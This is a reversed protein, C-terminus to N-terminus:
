VLTLGAQGAYNAPCWLAWFPYATPHVMGNPLEKCFLIFNGGFLNKMMM